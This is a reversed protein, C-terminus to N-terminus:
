QQLLEEARAKYKRADNYEQAKSYDDVITTYTKAANEYDKNAEYAIGLKM